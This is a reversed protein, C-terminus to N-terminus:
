DLNVPALLLLGFGFSKASGVGNYYTDLFKQSDTVALIGRFQVSGHCGGKGKRRFYNKVMPGIELPKINVIKFGGNAAKRNLWERLEEPNILPVRKGHRPMTGDIKKLSVCKTPNARLDFAFHHHTLFSPSIKKLSFEKPSCWSPCVPCVKALLWL